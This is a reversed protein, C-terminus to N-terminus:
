HYFYMEYEILVIEEINTKLCDFIIIKLNFWWKFLERAINDIVHWKFLDFATFDAFLMKLADLSVRHELMTRYFFRFNDLIDISRAFKEKIRFWRYIEKAIKVDNINQGNQHLHKFRNNFKVNNFNIIFETRTTMIKTHKYCM